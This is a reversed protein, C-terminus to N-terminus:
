KSADAFKWEPLDAVKKRAAESTPVGWHEFFPGLNKGTAASMQILWEDREAADGRPRLKLEHYKAFAKTFADWGFEDKLQKYMILATFPEDKWTEYKRGGAFYKKAHRQIADPRISEHLPSDKCLKEFCYLSYLNCTVEVTGDFTWPKQQHNHGLEHFYGWAGERQIRKLDVARQGENLPCMIPYGSHMYGASIQVDHVLREKRGRERSVCTLDADLDLIKDWFALVEGPDDVACATASPLTLIVNKGIFETWPCPHKRAKAWEMATTRGAEFQPAAVANEILVAVMGLEIGPKATLYILGGFPNNIETRGSLPVRKSIEPARQWSKLNWLTDTHCGIRVGLSKANEPPIVTITEGPAAYLGTGYWIESNASTGVGNCIYGNSSIVVTVIVTSRAAAKPVAGPFEAAAPHAKSPEHMMVQNSLRFLLRNAADAERLPKKATPVM